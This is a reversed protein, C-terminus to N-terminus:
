PAGAPDLYVLMGSFTIAAVRVAAGDVEFRGGPDGPSDLRAPLYGGQLEMDGVRSRCWPEACTGLKGHHPCGSDLVEAWRLSAEAVLGPQKRAQQRAPRTAARAAARARM